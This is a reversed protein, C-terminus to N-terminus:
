DHKIIDKYHMLAATKIFNPTIGLLYLKKVEKELHPNNSFMKQEYRTMEPYHIRKGRALDFFVRDKITLYSEIKKGIGSYM